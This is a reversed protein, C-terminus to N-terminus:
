WINNFDTLMQCLLLLLSFPASKQPVNYM